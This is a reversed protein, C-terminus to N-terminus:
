PKDKVLDLKSLAEVQESNYGFVCTANTNVSTGTPKCVHASPDWLPCSPDCTALFEVKTAFRKVILEGDEM